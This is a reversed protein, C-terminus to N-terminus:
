AGSGEEGVLKASVEMALLKLMQTEFKSPSSLILNLKPVNQSQDIQAQPGLLKLFTVLLKSSCRSLHSAAPAGDAV